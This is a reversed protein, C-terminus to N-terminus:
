LGEDWLNFDDSPEYSIVSNTINTIKGVIGDGFVVVGDVLQLTNIDINNNTFYQNDSLTHNKSGSDWTGGTLLEPNGTMLNTEEIGTQYLGVIRVNNGAGVSSTSTNIVINQTENLIKSSDLNTMNTLLGLYQVETEKVIFRGGTEPNDVKRIYGISDQLTVANPGTSLDWGAGNWLYVAPTEADLITEGDIGGNFEVDFYTSGGQSHSYYGYPSEGMFSALRADSSLDVVIESSIQFNDVDNWNTTYFTIIDGQRQIKIRTYDPSWTSATSGATMDSSAIMWTPTWPGNETYFVGWHNDPQQGGKTRAAVLTKNTSGDRTFAAILGITDNDGAADSRVNASFVYDNYKEPSVFGGGSGTNTPQVIRTPNQSLTWDAAQGGPTTGGPYYGSGDFRDWSNFVDAQSPPSIVQTAALAADADWYMLSPKEPLPTINIYAKGTETETGNTVTYDFSAPQGSLGTSNFEITGSSLSVTGGVPNSVATVTLTGGQGDIDNNSLNSASTLLTEGQRLSLMDPITIIPPIALVTMSVTGTENINSSNRVTYSFGAADIGLGGSTSTFEVNSGNLAVTGNIPSQVSILTLADLNGSWEDVSGALISAVPIITSYTTIVEFTNDALLIRYNSLGYFNSLSIPDGASKGIMDGMVNILDTLTVNNLNAIDTPLRSSFEAVIDAVSIKGSNQIPM